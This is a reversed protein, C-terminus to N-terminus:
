LRCNAELFRLADDFWTSAGRYAFSHGQQPSSGYPPYIRIEASKHSASMAAYLTRSPALNYDNEAQFFFIPSKANEVAHMMRSQLSPAKDWSEAGGSADVAACYDGQEAGLVAEIGGFSNGMTAIRTPVVFPQKKLWALAAMQDQFQETSLLRVMTAAAIAEGGSAQAAQIQEQIYPGADSSLGQGRRYPAFFVWGRAVFLPGILDFAQDNLLGPASGHNYLIARFPGTGAPKYLRGHLVKGESNFAVIESASAPPLHAQILAAVVLVARVRSSLM